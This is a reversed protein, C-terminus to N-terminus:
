VDERLDAVDLALRQVVLVLVLDLHQAPRPTHRVGRLQGSASASTPRPLRAEVIKREGVLDVLGGRHQHFPAGGTLMQLFRRDRTPLRALALLLEEDDLHVVHEDRGHGVGVTVFAAIQLGHAQRKRLDIEFIPRLLGVPREIGANVELVVDLGM